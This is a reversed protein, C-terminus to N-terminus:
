VALALPVVSLEYLSLGIELRWMRAIDYRLLANDCSAAIEPVDLICLHRRRLWEGKSASQM